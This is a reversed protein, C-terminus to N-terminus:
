IILYKQNLIFELLIKWKKYKNNLKSKFKNKEM